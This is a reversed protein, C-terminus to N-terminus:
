DWTGSDVPSGNQYTRWSGSGNADWTIVLDYVLAGTTGVKYSEIKGANSSEWTIEIKTAPEGYKQMKFVYNGNDLTYWSWEQGIQTTVAKYLYVHGMSQDIKQAADMYRWNDYTKDDATGTFFQQWKHQESILVIALRKTLSADQWSYEWATKTEALVEAGDPPTFVCGTGEFSTVQDVISLARQAMQDTSSEMRAPFSIDKLKFEPPNSKPTPAVPNEEDSSCGAFIFLTSLLLACMLLVKRCSM